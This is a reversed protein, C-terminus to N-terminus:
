ATAGSGPLVSVVLVVLVVVCVDVGSGCWWGSKLWVQNGSTTNIISCFVHNFSWSQAKLRKYGFEFCMHLVKFVEAIGLSANACVFPLM